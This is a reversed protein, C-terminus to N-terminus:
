VHGRVESVYSQIDEIHRRALRGQAKAIEAANM